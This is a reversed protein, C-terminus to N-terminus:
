HCTFPWLHLRQTTTAGTATASSRRRITIGSAEGLANWTLRFFFFLPWCCCLGCTCGCSYHHGSPWGFCHHVVEVAAPKEPGLSDLGHGYTLRSCATSHFGNVVGARVCVVSAIFEDNGRSEKMALAENL